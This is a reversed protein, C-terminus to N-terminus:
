VNRLAAALNGLALELMKRSTGCNMRMREQGGSGFGGGPNM